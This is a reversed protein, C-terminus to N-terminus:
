PSHGHKAMTTEQRVTWQRVAVGFGLKAYYRLKSQVIPLPKILPGKTNDGKTKPVM